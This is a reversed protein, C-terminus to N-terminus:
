GGGAAPFVSLVDGEQLIRDPEAHRGNVFFACADAVPSPLDALVDSVCTGPAVEVAYGAQTNASGPLYRRYYALLRITIQM